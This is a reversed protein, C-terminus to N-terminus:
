STNTFKEMLVTRPVALASSAAALLALGVLLPSLLRYRM